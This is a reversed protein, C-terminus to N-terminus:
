SWPPVYLRVEILRNNAEILSGINLSVDDRIYTGEREQIAREVRHICAVHQFMERSSARIVDNCFPSTDEFGMTFQLEEHWIEFPGRQLNGVPYTIFVHEIGQISSMLVRSVLMMCAKRRSNETIFQVATAKVIQVHPSKSVRYAYPCFFRLTRLRLKGCARSARASIPFYAIPQRALYGYKRIRLGTDEYGLPFPWCM